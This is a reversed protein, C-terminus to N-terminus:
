SHSVTHQRATKGNMKKWITDLSKIFKQKDAKTFEDLAKANIEDAVDEITSLLNAGKTTLFVNIVRRDDAVRRRVVLGHREMRDVVGTITPNDFDLREGLQSLSIGDEDDLQALVIYQSATINYESLRSELARKMGRATRALLFGLSRDLVNM